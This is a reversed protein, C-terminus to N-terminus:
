TPSPVATLVPLAVAFGVVLAAVGAATYPRSRNILTWSAGLILGFFIAYVTEPHEAILHPLPVIRTFTALAAVIGAGLAALFIVDLRQAIARLDGRLLAGLLGPRIASVAGILRGYIGTIFAVTGGSVGPVVDASGMCFGKLAISWLPESRDIDLPTVPDEPTVAGAANEAVRPSSICRTSCCRWM